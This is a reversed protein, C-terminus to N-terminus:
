EGQGSGTSPLFRFTSLIQDAADEYEPVNEKSPFNAVISFSLNPNPKMFYYHNYGEAPGEMFRVDFAFKQMKEIEGQRPDAIVMLSERRSNAYEDLSMADEGPNDLHEFYITLRPTGLNCGGGICNPDPPLNNSIYVKDASEEVLKFDNPYRFQYDYKLNQYTKWGATEDLLPTDEPSLILTPTAVPAWTPTL